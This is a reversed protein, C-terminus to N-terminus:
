HYFENLFAHLVTNKDNKLKYKRYDAVFSSWTSRQHPQDMKSYDNFNSMLFHESRCCIYQELFSIHEYGSANGMLVFKNLPTQRAVQPKNTAIFLKKSDINQKACFDDLANAIKSKM